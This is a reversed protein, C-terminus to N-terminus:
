FKDGRDRGVSDDSIVEVVLDAPGNLEAETLQQLHDSALFFLDPERANGGELVRMSFPAVRVKGLKFLQVFLGILLDLFVVIRQHSDKPPVHFIVEGDIWETLGGEHTWNRYEEYSMRLPAPQPEAATTTQLSM